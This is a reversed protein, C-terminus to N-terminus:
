KNNLVIYNIWNMHASVRTAVRPAVAECGQGSIFSSVGILVLKGDSGYSALPGGSDGPCIGKVEDGSQCINKPGVYDGFYKKCTEENVIKVIAYQLTDKSLAKYIFYFSVTFFTLWSQSFIYFTLLNFPKCNSIVGWGSVFAPQGDFKTKEADEYHM